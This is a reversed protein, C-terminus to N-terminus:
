NVELNQLTKTAEKKIYECYDVQSNMNIIENLVDVPTNPNQALRELWGNCGGIDLIYQVYREDQFIQRLLEPPANPNDALISTERFSLNSYCGEIDEGCFEKLDTSKNIRHEFRREFLYNKINDSSLSLAIFTLLMLLVWFIIFRGNRNEIKPFLKKSYAFKILGFLILLDVLVLLPNIYTYSNCGNVIFKMAPLPIGFYNESFVTPCLKGDHETSSVEIWGFEIPSDYNDTIRPSYV